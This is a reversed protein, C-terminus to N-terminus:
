KECTAPVPIGIACCAVDEFAFTFRDHGYHPHHGPLTTPNNHWVDHTVAFGRQHEADGNERQLDEQPYNSPPLCNTMATTEIIEECAGTSGVPCLARDGGGARRLGQLKCSTINSAPCVATMRDNLMQLVTGRAQMEEGGVMAEMSSVLLDLGVVGVLIPHDPNSTDFVPSSVTTGLFGTTAYTYPESWVVHSASSVLESYFAYFGGLSTKLGNSSSDPIPAYLGGTQCAISKALGGDSTFARGMAYAFVVAPNPANASRALIAGPVDTEPTFGISQRNDSLLVIAKKCGSGTNSSNGELVDFARNFASVQNSSSGMGEGTRVWHQLLSGVANATNELNGQALGGDAPYVQRVTTGFAFVAFSDAANLRELM